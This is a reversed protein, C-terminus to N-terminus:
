DEKNRNGLFVFFGILIILFIIVCVVIIIIWMMNDNKDSEPSEQSPTCSLPTKGDYDYRCTDESCYGLCKGCQATAGDVCTNYLYGIECSDNTFVCNNSKNDKVTGPINCKSPQYKVNLSTPASWADFYKLAEYADITYCSTYKQSPTTWFSPIPYSPIMMIDLALKSYGEVLKECYPLVVDPKEPDIECNQVKWTVENGNSKLSYWVGPYMAQPATVLNEQEPVFELKAPSGSSSTDLVNGGLLVFPANTTSDNSGTMTFTNEDSSSPKIRVTTLYSNQFSGYKLSTFVVNANEEVEGKVPVKTLYFFRNKKKSRAVLFFTYITLDYPNGKIFLDAM